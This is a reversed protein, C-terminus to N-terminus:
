DLLRSRQTPVPLHCCDTAGFWRRRRRAVALYLADRLPRPLLWLLAAARYWGGLAAAVALVAASRIRVRGDVERWVLSGPSAPLRRVPAAGPERREAPEERLAAPLLRRATKGQLAALAVRGRRDHRVVWRAARQCLVCHGDIFLIPRASAGEARHTLGQGATPAGPAAGPRTETNHNPKMADGGPGPVQQRLEAVFGQRVQEPQTALVYVVFPRLEDVGGRRYLQALLTVVRQLVPWRDRYVALMTLQATRGKLEGRVM